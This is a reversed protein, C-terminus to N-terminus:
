PAAAPPRLPLRLTFTAGRGLTSEASLTGGHQEVIQRAGTLGIGTGAFRDVVNPARYFPEFIRVLAEAPIGVGSDTVTLVAEDGDATHARGLSITIASGDPSYKIANGLLNVVVRELQGGDWEGILAEAEKRVTIRRSGTSTTVESMAALVIAVLDTPRFRLAASRGAQRETLAALDSLMASMRNVTADIHQLGELLREADPTDLRAAQRQLLQAQTKIATLPSRLDHSISAALGERQRLAAEAETQAAREAEASAIRAIVRGCQGALALLAAEDVPTYPQDGPFFVSLGGVVRGDVLMPVAVTATEAPLALGGLLPYRAQRAANSEIRIVRATRVTEAIPLAAGLPFRSTGRMLGGEIGAIAVVELEAGSWLRVAMGASAHLLAAAAALAVEAAEAVTQTAALKAAAQHRDAADPPAPLRPESPAPTPRRPRLLTVLLPGADGPVWVGEADVTIDAGDKGRLTLVGQWATGAGGDTTRGVAPRPGPMFADLPLRLLEDRTYGLLTAAAPNADLCRAEGDTLVVAVPFRDFLAQAFAPAASRRARAASRPTASM